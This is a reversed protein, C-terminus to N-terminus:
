SAGMQRYHNMIVPISTAPTVGCRIVPLRTYNVWSGQPKMPSVYGGTYNIPTYCAPNTGGPASQYSAGSGSSGSVCLFYNTGGTLQPNSIATGASDVFDTHTKWVASTETVTIAASGQMIFNGSTDYICCRITFSGSAVKVMAGLENVIYAGSGPCTFNYNYNKLAYGSITASYTESSNNNGFYEM